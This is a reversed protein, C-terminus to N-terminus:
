VVSKRDANVQLKSVSGVMDPDAVRGFSGRMEKWAGDSDCPEALWELQSCCPEAVVSDFAVGCGNVDVVVVLCDTGRPTKEVRKPLLEVDVSLAWGMKDSSATGAMRM